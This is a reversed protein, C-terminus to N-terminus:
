RETKAFKRKALAGPKPYQYAGGGRRRGDALPLM